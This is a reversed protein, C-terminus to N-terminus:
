FDEGDMLEIASAGPHNFRLLLRHVHQFRVQLRHFRATREGGGGVAAVEDSTTKTRPTSSAPATTTAAYVASKPADAPNIGRIVPSMSSRALQSPTVARRLPRPRGRADGRAAEGSSAKKNHVLGSMVQDRVQRPVSAISAAVGSLNDIVNDLASSGTLEVRKKHGSAGIDLRNRKRSSGQNENRVENVYRTGRLSAMLLRQHSSSISSLTGASDEHLDFVIRRDTM